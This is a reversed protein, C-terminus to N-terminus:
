SLSLLEDYSVTPLHQSSSSDIDAGLLVANYCCIRSLSLHVASVLSWVILGLNFSKNISFLAMGLYLFVVTEVCFLCNLLSIYQSFSVLWGHLLCYTTSATSYGTNCSVLQLSHLTVHCNWLVACGHNRVFSSGRSPLLSRICVSGVHCVGILPAKEFKDGESVPFCSFLQSLM